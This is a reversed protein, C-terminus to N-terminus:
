MSRMSVFNQYDSENVLGKSQIEENITQVSSGGYHTIREDIDEFLLENFKDLQAESAPMATNTIYTNVNTSSKAEKINKAMQARFLGVCKKKLIILAALKDDDSMSSGNITELHEKFEYLIGGNLKGDDDVEYMSETLLRSEDITKRGTSADVSVIDGAANFNEEGKINTYTKSIKSCIDFLPDNKDRNKDEYFTKLFLAADKSSSDFTPAQGNVKSGTNLFGPILSITDTFNTIRAKLAESEPTSKDFFEKFGADKSEGLMSKKIMQTYREILEAATKGASDFDTIGAFLGKNINGLQTDLAANLSSGILGTVASKQADNLVASNKANRVFKRIGELDTAYDGAKTNFHDTYVKQVKEGLKLMLYDRVSKDPVKLIKSITNPMDGKDFDDSYTLKGIYDDYYKVLLDSGKNPDKIADFARATVDQKNKAQVVKLQAELAKIAAKKDFTAGLTADRSIEDIRKRIAESTNPNVILNDILSKIEANNVRSTDVTSERNKRDLMFRLYRKVDENAIANIESEIVGYQTQSNMSEIKNAISSIDIANAGLRVCGSIISRSNLNLQESITVGLKDDLITAEQNIFKTLSKLEQEAGAVGAKKIAEMIKTDDFCDNIEKLTQNTYPLDAVNAIRDVIRKSLENVLQLYEKGSNQNNFQDKLGELNEYDRKLSELSANKNTISDKIDQIFEGITKNNKEDGYAIQHKLTSLTKQMIDGSSSVSENYIAKKPLEDWKAYRKCYGPYKAKIYDQYASIFKRQLNFNALRANVDALLAEARAKAAPSANPDALIDKYGKQEAVLRDYEAQLKPYYTKKFDVLDKSMIAWEILGDKYRQRIDRWGKKKGDKSMYEGESRMFKLYNKKYEIKKAREEFYKKFGFRAAIGSVIGGFLGGIASGMTATTYIGGFLGGLLAGGGAILAGAGVLAGAAAVVTLAGFLFQKLRSRRVPARLRKRQSEAEKWERINIGTEESEDGTKSNRAGPTDDNSRKVALFPSRAKERKIDLVMDVQSMTIMTGKNKEDVKGEMEFRMALDRAYSDLNPMDKKFKEQNFLFGLSDLKYDKMLEDFHKYIAEFITQNANSQMALGDLDEDKLGYKQPNGRIKHYLFVYVYLHTYREPTWGDEGDARIAKKVAEPWYSKEDAM